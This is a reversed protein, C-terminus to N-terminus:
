NRMLMRSDFTERTLSHEQTSHAQFWVCMVSDSDIYEVCMQPGGSNLQVCDGVDFENSPPPRTEDWEWGPAYSADDSHDDYLEDYPHTTSDFGSDFGGSRFIADEDVHRSKKVKMKMKKKNKKKSVAAFADDAEALAKNIDIVVTKKNKKAKAKM